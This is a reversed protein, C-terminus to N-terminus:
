VELKGNLVAFCREKLEEAAGLFGLQEALPVFFLLTEEATSRQNESPKAEITRMNHMRDALKVYLSRKDAVELLKRTNEHASLKLKYFTEKNSDLHTVGDVIRAVEKNFMAEINELLMPTDEVTDHLLAGLLTAEEQNYDLVIQGVSLPHLYFPEGSHRKQAGHYHKITEIAKHVLDLDAQTRQAVEDLFVKEQEKAGPYTDDARPLEADLEMHPADMDKPRVERLDVPIVYHLTCAGDQVVTHTYGYHAETTRKNAALPLEQTNKPVLPAVSNMPALYYPKLKPGERETTITFSLAGIIKIYGKKVSPRSYGLKADELNILIPQVEGVVNRLFTISNIFLMKIKDIDCQVTKSKTIKRIQLGKDIGKVRLRDQLAVLLADVSITSVALRLYSTARHDLRDLEIAIPALQENLENLKQNVSPPLSFKQVAERIEKSLTTLRTLTSAGSKKFAQSFKAKDQFALLLEDTTEQNTVTLNQNNVELQRYAQKGKLLAILLSTLLLLGYLIRFQLSGIQDLPLTSGTYQEFFVVALTTGTCALFLALPWRLLLVAMLLNIMMVMVQMYHFHSMIALLTGAFFLVAGIGLPWFFTIFRKSRIAPPWVPFTLFATTIPLVTHYIGTYLPEYIKIDINGITYFAAYTAAMTYLGFFFYFSEQAPLNKQLYPYLRFDRIAQLRQRWAQRRAARELALISDPVVKQFGGEEKLLYHSGVLGIFNALMGPVMSDSNNFFISWLVVTLFGSAMGLLVVRSSSRFGFVSLLLPVTVIPLYLSCSLLVMELLDNTYLALVASLCGIFLTALRVRLVSNRPTTAYFAPVVDNTAMVAASNLFSDASSMAMAVIGVGLLGKFGTYAYENLLYPFIEKKSLGANSALLLIAIWVVFLEIGLIIGAAYTFSKKVQVTNNAMAIRQFVEPAIAPISFCLLWGVSSMFAPTFAVVKGLQFYSVTALTQQVLQNANPVRNWVILAITPILTGFTIFQIVDTFTVAKIGGLSSYIMVIAAVLMTVGPGELGFILSLVKAIVQFQVALWGIQNCVGSGATIVKVTEGYMDGMAEAVSLNNLFKGM